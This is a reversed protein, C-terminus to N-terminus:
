AVRCASSSNYNQKSLYKQPASRLCGSPNIPIDIFCYGTKKVLWWTVQQTFTKNIMDNNNAVGNALRM